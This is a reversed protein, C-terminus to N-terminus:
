HILELQISAVATSKIQNAQHNISRQAKNQTHVQPSRIPNEGNTEQSYFNTKNIKRERERERM